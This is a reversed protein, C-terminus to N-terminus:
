VFPTKTKSQLSWVRKSPIIMPLNSLEREGFGGEEASLCGADQYQDSTLHEAFEAQLGFHVHHAVRLNPFYNKNKSSEISQLESAM